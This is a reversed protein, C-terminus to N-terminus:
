EGQRKKEVKRDVLKLDVDRMQNYQLLADYIPSILTYLCRSQARERRTRRKKEPATHRSAATEPNM